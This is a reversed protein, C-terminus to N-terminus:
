PTAIAPAAVAPRAIRARLAMRLSHALLAFVLMNSPTVGQADLLLYTSVACFVGYDLPRGRRCLRFGVLLWFAYFALTTIVGYNLLITFYTSDVVAFGTAGAERLQRMVHTPGFLLSFTDERGLDLLMNRYITLRFSSVVDAIRWVPSLSNGRAAFYLVGPFLSLIGVLVALRPATHRAVRGYFAFALAAVVLLLTNRSSIMALLVATGLTLAALAIRRVVRPTRKANAIALGVYLAAACLASASQTPHDFGLHVRPRGYFMTTELGYRALGAAVFGVAAAGVGSLWHRFEDDRLAGLCLLSAGGV